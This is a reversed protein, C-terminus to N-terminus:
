EGGGEKTIGTHASRLASFADHVAARATKVAERVAALDEKFESIIGRIDSGLTSEDTFDFTYDKDALNSLQATAESIADEASAVATSVETIDIGREELKAARSVIRELIGGLRDLIRGWHEVWKTLVEEKRSALNELTKQKRTDRLESVKEKWEDRRVRAEQSAQVRRERLGDLMDSRFVKRDSINVRVTERVQNFLDSPSAVTDEVTDVSVDVSDQASVIIPTALFIFLVLM